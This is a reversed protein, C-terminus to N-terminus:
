ASTPKEDPKGGKSATMGATVIFRMGHEVSMDIPRVKSRPVTATFGGIQYSFPIFIAIKDDGGFGDPLGRFDERTVIALFELSDLEVVVMRGAKSPDKHFYSMMDGISSYITKFLPIKVFLRDMMKTWKQILLNNVVIGFCFIFVFAVLIGMGPFYYDGVLAKLPVRFIDELVRLLWIIIAISIAIPALAILGRKFIKGM